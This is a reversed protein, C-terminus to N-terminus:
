KHPLQGSLKVVLAMEAEIAANLKPRSLYVIDKDITLTLVDPSVLDKVNTCDCAHQLEQLKIAESTQAIRILIRRSREKKLADGLRQFLGDWKLLMADFSGTSTWIDFAGGKLPHYKKPIRAAAVPKPIGCLFASLWIGVAIDPRLDKADKSLKWAQLFAGDAERWAGNLLKCCASYYLTLADARPSKTLIPQLGCPTPTHASLYFLPMQFIARAKDYLRVLPGDALAQPARHVLIAARAYNMAVSTQYIPPTRDLRPLIKETYEVYIRPTVELPVLLATATETVENWPWHSQNKRQFFENVLNPHDRFFKRVPAFMAGLQSLHEITTIQQFITLLDTTTTAHPVHHDFM